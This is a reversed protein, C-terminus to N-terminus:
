MGVHTGTLKLEERIFDVLLTNDAVDASVPQGNIKLNIQSM